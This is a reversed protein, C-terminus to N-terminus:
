VQKCEMVGSGLTGKTGVQFLGGCVILPKPTCSSLFLHTLESSLKRSTIGLLETAKGKKCTARALYVERGNRAKSITPIFYSHRIYLVSAM